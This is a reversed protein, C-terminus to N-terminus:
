AARELLCLIQGGQKVVASFFFLLPLIALQVGVTRTLGAATIGGQAATFINAIGILFM